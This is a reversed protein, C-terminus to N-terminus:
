PRECYGDENPFASPAIYVPKKFEVGLEELKERTNYYITFIEAIKDEREFDVKTIPSYKDEGFGTGLAQTSRTEKSTSASANLTTACTMVSLASSCGIISQSDSSSPEISTCTYSYWPGSNIPFQYPKVQYPIYEKIIKEIIQVREKEKYVACGIVGLNGGKKVKMAYSKEPTSFYFQSVKEDSTRWGDITVSDYANVIYGQSKFSGEKGSIISLGDVTPIFLAKSNSNNKMRLSFHSGQKGEIYNKGNHYYEKASSGHVLIEFEFSSKIM